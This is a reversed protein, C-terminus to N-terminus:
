ETGSTKIDTKTGTCMSNKNSHSQLITQLQINHYRWCQEKQETNGKSNTTNQIEWIFKLTSKEIEIIFTMLIKIPITNFMYVAKPLIGMKVINIQWDMLMPSREVKQLRRQDREELM